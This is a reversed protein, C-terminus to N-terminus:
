PILHAIPMEWEIGLDPKLKDGFFEIEYHMTKNINYQHSAYHMLKAACKMAFSTHWVLGKCPTVFAGTCIALVINCFEKSSETLLRKNKSLAYAISLYLHSLLHFIWNAGEALSALKGTLEQAESV